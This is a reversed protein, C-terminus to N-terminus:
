ITGTADAGGDAPTTVVDLLMLRVPSVAPCAYLNQTRVRQWDDGNKDAHTHSVIMMGHLSGVFRVM